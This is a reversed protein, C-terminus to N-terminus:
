RSGSARGDAFTKLWVPAYAATLAVGIGSCGSQSFCWDIAARVNDIERAAQALDATAAESSSGLAASVFLDRFFGACRRTVQEADGSEALRGLGYARITELLRWRGAPVSGDWMVLSKAVLNVIIEAVASATSDGAVATAAELTFGGRFVAL